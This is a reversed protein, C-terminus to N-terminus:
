FKLFVINIVNDYDNYICIFLIYFNLIFVIIFYSRVRWKDFILM